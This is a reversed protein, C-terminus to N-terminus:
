TDEFIWGQEHQSFIGHKDTLYARAKENSLFYYSDELGFRVFLKYMGEEAAPYRCPFEYEYSSAGLIGPRPLEAIYQPVLSEISPPYLGRDDKYKELATIIPAANRTIVPFSTQEAKDPQILWALCYGSILGIALPVLVLPATSRTKKSQLLYVLNALLALFSVAWFTSGYLLLKVCLIQRLDHIGTESPQACVWRGGRLIVGPSFLMIISAIPIWLYPSRLVRLLRHMADM